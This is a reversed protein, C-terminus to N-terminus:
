LFAFLCNSLCKSCGDTWALISYIEKTENNDDLSSLTQVHAKVADPLRHSVHEISFSLDWVFNPFLSFLLLLCIWININLGLNFHKHRANGWFKHNGVAGLLMDSDIIRHHPPM